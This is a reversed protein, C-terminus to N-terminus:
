LGELKLNSIEIFLGYPVSDFHSTYSIIRRVIKLAQPISRFLRLAKVFIAACYLPRWLEWRIKSMVDKQNIIRNTFHLIFKNFPMQKKNVSGSVKHYIVASIVTVCRLGAKKLRQCYNFDEEGFFFKETYFGISDVTSRRVMMACGTVFETDIVDLGKSLTDIRRQSYYKRDGYWTFHGGANWMKTRDGYHRINCSAVAIDPNSNMADMMKEIAGNEVVTDNNLILVFDFKNYVQSWIVNNGRAFGLNEKSTIFYVSRSLFSTFNEFEQLNQVFSSKWLDHEGLWYGIRRVSEDSSANDIIFISIDRTSTTSQISELCEITDEYGNWNILIVALKHM